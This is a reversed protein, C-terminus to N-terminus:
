FKKPINKAFTLLEQSHIVTSLFVLFYHLFALLAGVCNNPVRFSAQWSLLFLSLALISSPPQPVREREQETDQEEDSSYIELESLVEDIDAETEEDPSVDSEELPEVPSTPAAM